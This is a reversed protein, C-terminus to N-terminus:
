THKIDSKIRKEKSIYVHVVSDFIHLHAVSLQISIFTHNLVKDRKSAPLLNKLENATLMAEAWLVNPLDTDLLLSDKMTYLTRWTQESVSNHKLIYPASHKISIGKTKCWHLLAHSIYEGGGDVHLHALEEDTLRELKLVM